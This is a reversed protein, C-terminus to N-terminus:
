ITIYAFFISILVKYIFVAINEIHEEDKKKKGRGGSFLYSFVNLKLEREDQGYFQNKSLSKVAVKKTQPRVM